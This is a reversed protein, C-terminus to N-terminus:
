KMSSFLVYLPLAPIFPIKWLCTVFQLNLLTLDGLGTQGSIGVEIWDGIFVRPLMPCFFGKIEGWM